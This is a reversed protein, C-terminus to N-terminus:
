MKEMILMAENRISKALHEIDDVLIDLDKYTRNGSFDDRDDSNRTMWLKFLGGLKGLDGNVKLLASVAQRDVLSKVPYNMALSRLYTSTNLGHAEAKDTIIKLEEDSLRIEIRRSRNLAKVEKVKALLFKGKEVTSCHL